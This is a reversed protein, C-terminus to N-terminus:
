LREGRPDPRRVCCRGRGLSVCAPAKGSEEVIAGHKGTQMAEGREACDIGTSIGRESEISLKKGGPDVKARREATMRAMKKRWENEVTGLNGGQDIV